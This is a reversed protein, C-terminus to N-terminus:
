TLVTQWTLASLYLGVGFAVHTTVNIARIAVANPMRAAMLGFGLAPQMVFWPAVLLAVAFAIATVLTPSSELATTMLALYIAAYAIGIAYHFAWGIALEGRVRTTATIPRHIFVGRPFGAAWRGVLAWNAPPLGAAVQLFLHWLDTAVTAVVGVLLVEEAPGRLTGLQESIGAAHVAILDVV